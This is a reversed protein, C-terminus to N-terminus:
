DSNNDEIPPPKIVNKMMAPTVGHIRRMHAERALTNKCIKGCFKCKAAKNPQHSTAYHRKANFISSLTKGCKLCAVKGDPLKALGLEEDVEGDYDEEYYLGTILVPKNETNHHNTFQLSILDTPANCKARACGKYSKTQRAMTIKKM